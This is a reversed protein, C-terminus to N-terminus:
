VFFKRFILSFNFIITIIFVVITEYGCHNAIVKALTTKGVGPPGSILIIKHTTQLFDNDNFNSNTNENSSKNFENLKKANNSKQPLTFKKGFVIEDWSKM